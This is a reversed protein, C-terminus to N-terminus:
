GWTDFLKADLSMLAAPLSLNLLTYYDKNNFQYFICSHKNSVFM